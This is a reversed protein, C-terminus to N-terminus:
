KRYGPGRIAKGPRAGTHERNAIVPIGNVWVHEVGIALQHPNEFTALDDITEPDFIVIDAYYGEKLAGRRSLKLNLAPLLTLKRVAEELSIIKEERVYNSLLRAFSGYARPHTSQKLFVGEPAMSGADSCFSMYPLAIKKRINEESMSFYVVQIRSGDEVILDCLVKSVAEDRETAVESLYKGTLHRLNENRFGVLLIRDPPTNWDIESEIQRRLEPDSLREIEKLIGGEKAWNPLVIDLGTSSAPYNYMDTTLSIGSDRAEEILYIASDLKDWNSAGSAKLHYIEARINAEIAITIIERVAELLKEEEDRIHSIYMGGYEAAIKAFEILEYTDSYMSPVYELSSSVGVAGEEMAQRILNKMQERQETNAEVNNMGLVNQRITSNGVFSAINTSIGKREMFDFYEGLTNWEIEYKYDVMRAEIAAKMSDNLPGMSSGEGMVEMTVGQMLDGLGRGDMILTENAWSLMNIFGPSVAMGSADIKNGANAFGIEGIFAITDGKIGIDAIFPEGGTGDYITGGTIITDYKQECSILLIILFPLIKKM